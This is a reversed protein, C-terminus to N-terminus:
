KNGNTGGNEFKKVTEIFNDFREDLLHRYEALLEPEISYRGYIAKRGVPDSTSAEEYDTKIIWNHRKRLQEIYSSLRYSATQNQYERHTYRKGTMLRALARATLSEPKPFTPKKM